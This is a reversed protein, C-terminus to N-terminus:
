KDVESHPVWHSALRMADAIGEKAGCRRSDQAKLEPAMCSTRRDPKDAQAEVVSGFPKCSTFSGAAWSAASEISHDRPNLAFPSGASERVANQESSSSIANIFSRFEEFTVRGDKNADAARIVDDCERLCIHSAVTSVESAEIVGDGNTDLVNFADLCADRNTMLRTSALASLFETWEVKGTNDVDMGKYARPTIGVGTDSTVQRLEEYTLMGDGNADIEQFAQRMKALQAEPLSHAVLCAIAKKIRSGGSFNRARVAIATCIDRDETFGPGDDRKTAMWPSRLAQDASFRVTPDVKCMQVIALKATPSVRKWVPDDFCLAGMAAQEFLEDIDEDDWPPEGCLFTYTIVGCSWMDCKEDYRDRSIIEPAIYQPTGCKTRLSRRGPVFTQAFGFDIIKLQHETLPTAQVRDKLLFNEPKLDRHAICRTHM